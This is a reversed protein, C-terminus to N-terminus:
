SEPWAGAPWDRSTHIIRLVRLTAKDPLEFAVIYPLGRVPKEFTGAKCGARAAPMFALKDIAAVLKEGVRRAITRGSSPPSKTSTRNPM